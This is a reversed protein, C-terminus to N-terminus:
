PFISDVLDLATGVLLSSWGFLSGGPSGFVLLSEAGTKPVVLFALNATEVFGCTLGITLSAVDGASIM